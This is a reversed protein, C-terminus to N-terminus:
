QSTVSPPQFHSLLGRGMANVICGIHSGQIAVQAFAHGFAAVLYKYFEEGKQEAEDTPCGGFYQCWGKFEEVRTPQNKEVQAMVKEYVGDEAM